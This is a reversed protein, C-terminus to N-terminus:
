APAAPAEAAAPAAPPAAEAAKKAEAVQNLVRALAAIPGNLVYVLSTIPANMQGLLRAVLVDKSPLEALAKIEDNTLSRTGLVGGRLKLNTRTNALYDTIAKAPEVPDGFGIILGTPGQIIEKLAAKGTSDAARYALTNKVVQYRVGKPRLTKRLSTVTEMTVGTNDASIVITSKKLLEELEQITEAKKQTPM